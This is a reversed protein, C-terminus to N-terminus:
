RPRVNNGPYGAGTTSGGSNPSSNDQSGARDQTDSGQNGTNDVGQPRVNNGPYGAGTTSGRNDTNSSEQPSTRNRYLSGEEGNSSGRMRPLACYYGGGTTGNGEYGECTSNRETSPPQSMSSPNSNTQAFGPLGLLVSASAVGALSILKKISNKHRHANM